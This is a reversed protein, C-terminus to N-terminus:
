RRKRLSIENTWQDALSKYNNLMWLLYHVCDEYHMQKHWMETMDHRIEKNRRKIWANNKGLEEIQKELQQM